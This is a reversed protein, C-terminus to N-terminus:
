RRSRAIATRDGRQEGAPRHPRVGGGDQSGTRTRAGNPDSLDSPLVLCEGGFAEIRDKTAALGQEDRATIAVRAGEAALRLAIATGTGGKSAGTVLAVKGDAAREAM